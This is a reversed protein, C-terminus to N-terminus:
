AQVHNHSIEEQEEKVKRCPGAQSNSLLIHMGKNQARYKYSLSVRKPKRGILKLLIAREGQSELPGVAFSCDVRTM